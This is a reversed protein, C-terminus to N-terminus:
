KTKSAKTRGDPSTVPTDKGSHSRRYGIPPNDIYIQALAAIGETIQDAKSNLEEMTVHLHHDATHISSSAWLVLSLYLTFILALPFLVYVGLTALPSFFGEFSFFKTAPEEVVQLLQLAADKLLDMGNRVDLQAWEEQTGGATEVVAEWVLSSLTLLFSTIYDGM